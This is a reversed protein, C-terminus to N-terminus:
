EDKSKNILKNNEDDSNSASDDASAKSTEEQNQINTEQLDTIGEQLSLIAEDIAPVVTGSLFLPVEETKQKLEDTLAPNFASDGDILYVSSLGEVLNNAQDSAMDLESVVARIQSKLAQYSQIKQQLESIQNVFEPM